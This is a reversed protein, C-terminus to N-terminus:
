VNLTEEYFLRFMESCDKEYKEQRKIEREFKENTLEDLNTIEFHQTPITFVRYGNERKSIDIGKTIYRNDINM